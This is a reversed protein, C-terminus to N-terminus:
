PLTKVRFNCVFKFSSISITIKRKRVIDKENIRIKRQKLLYDFIDKQNYKIALM